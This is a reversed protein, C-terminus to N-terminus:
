RACRGVTAHRPADRHRRKGARPLAGGEAQGLAGATGGSRRTEVRMWKRYAAMYRGAQDELPIIVDSAAVVHKRGDAGRCQVTLGRRANGDYDFKLVEVPAGTITAACPVAVADEFAQQFAWLQEDDGNADTTIEDILADLMAQDARSAKKEPRVKRM